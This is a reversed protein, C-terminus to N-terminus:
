EEDDCFGWDVGTPVNVSHPQEEVELTIKCVQFYCGDCNEMAAKVADARSKAYCVCELSSRVSEDDGIWTYFTKKHIKKPM